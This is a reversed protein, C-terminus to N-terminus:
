RVAASPRYAGSVAHADPAPRGTMQGTMQLAMAQGVRQDPATFRTHPPRGQARARREADQEVHSLAAMGTVVGMDLVGYDQASLSAPILVALLALSHFRRM